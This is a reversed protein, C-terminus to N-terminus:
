GAYHEDVYKIIDASEYMHVGREPDNLFPVQSSGGLKILESRTDSEARLSIQKKEFPIKHQDLHALVRQCFPCGPDFYIQIM